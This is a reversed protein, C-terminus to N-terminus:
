ATAELEIGFEERAFAEIRDMYEAFESVSLTSTSIPVDRGSPTQHWGIFRGAFEAHWIDSAFRKGDVWASESIDRLLAWYRRNQPGSRTAKAEMVTVALPRNQQAMASWNKALLSLLHQHQTPTRLIFTRTLIM